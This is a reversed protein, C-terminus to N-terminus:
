FHIFLFSCLTKLKLILYFWNRVQDRPV